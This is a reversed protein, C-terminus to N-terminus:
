VARAFGCVLPESFARALEGLTRAKGPPAGLLARRMGPFIQLAAHREVATCAAPVRVSHWFLLCVFTCVHLWGCLWWAGAGGRSQRDIFSQGSEFEM